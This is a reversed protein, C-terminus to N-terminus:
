LDLGELTSVGTLTNFYYLRGDPTSQPIWFAAEEQENEANADDAKQQVGGEESDKVPGAVVACYNAPFWGRVGNNVGDWWGSESETIVRIIDGRRFSLSTRDEKDYNYLARVYLASPAPNGSHLNRPPQRNEDGESFTSSPSRNRLPWTEAQQLIGTDQATLVAASDKGSKTESNL